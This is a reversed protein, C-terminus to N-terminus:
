NEVKGRMLGLGRADTLSAARFLSPKKFLEQGFALISARQSFLEGRNRGKWLEGGERVCTWPRARPLLKM